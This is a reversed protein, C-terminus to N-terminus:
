LLAGPALSVPEATHDKTTALGKQAESKGDPSHPHYHYYMPFTFHHVAKSNKCFPEQGNKLPNFMSDGYSGASRNWLMYALSTVVRERSFKNM